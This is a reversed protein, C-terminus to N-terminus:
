RSLVMGRKAIATENFLFKDFDGGKYRHVNKGVGHTRECLDLSQRSNPREFASGKILRFTPELATKTRTVMDSRTLGTPKARRADSGAGSCRVDRSRCTLGTRALLRFPRRKGLIDAGAFENSSYPRIEPASNKFEAARDASVRITPMMLTLRASSSSKCAPGGSGAFSRSPGTAVDQSVANIRIHSLDNIKTGRLEM